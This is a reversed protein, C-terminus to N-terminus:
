SASGSPSASAARNEPSSCHRTVLQPIQGVAIAIAANTLSPGMIAALGVALILFPFALLTDALRMIVSDIWGRYYGAVLGLPVAVAMAIATAMVSAQMSARTGWITRSLTDRGLEDTGFWHEANPPSLLYEFHNEGPEFPAILPAFVGVILLVLILAGGFAGLPNTRIIRWARKLPQGRRRPEVLASTDARLGAKAENVM